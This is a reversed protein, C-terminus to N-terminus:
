QDTGTDSDTAESAAAANRMRFLVEFTTGGSAPMHFSGDLQDSLADVIELGLKGHGSQLAPDLGKGNDKVVLRHLDGEVAQVLVDIHGGTAYPFAHRFANTMLECLIIGLGIATDQDCKLGQTDVEFSVTRSNPLNVDATAQTLAKFFLDLDVNRLDKLAYLKHHVLAITDIRQKGRLFEKRVLENEMSSAQLNLLSSVVQLNNKVRHHVERNLVEREDLAKALRLEQSRSQREKRMLDFAVVRSRGWMTALLAILVALLAAIFFLWRRQTELIPLYTNTDLLVGSYLTQGNLTVPSFSALFQRDEHGVLFSGTSRTVNWEQAAADLAKRLEEDMVNLDGNMIRGDSNLVLQAGGKDAFSQENLWPIREPDAEVAIVRFPADSTTPRLLLSTQLLIGAENEKQVVTWIPADRADELAKSFWLSSRPDFQEPRLLTRQQPLRGNSLAVIRLEVPKNQSGEVTTRLLLTDGNRQLAIANGFEDAVGVKRWAWKRDLLPLWRDVCQEESPLGVMGDLWAGETHLLEELEQTSGAIRIRALQQDSALRQELYDSAASHNRLLAFATFGALVLLVIAISAILITDTSRRAVFKM